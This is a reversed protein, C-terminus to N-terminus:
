RRATRASHRAADPPEAISASLTWGAAARRFHMRVAAGRRRGDSWVDIQV